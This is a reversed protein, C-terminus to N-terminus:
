HEYLEWTDGLFGGRSGGFLITRSRDSDYAIAAFGRPGPGIDQIQTWHKGDWGWTDGSYGSGTLGGFLLAHTGDFVM